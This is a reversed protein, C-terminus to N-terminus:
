LVADGCGVGASLLDIRKTSRAELATALEDLANRVNSILAYMEGDNQDPPRNSLAEVQRFKHNIATLANAPETM